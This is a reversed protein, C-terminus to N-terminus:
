NEMPIEHLVCYETVKPVRTYVGFLFSGPQAHGLNYLLNIISLLIGDISMRVGSNAELMDDIARSDMPKSFIIADRSNGVVIYITDVM